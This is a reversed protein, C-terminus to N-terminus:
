IYSDAYQILGDCEVCCDGQDLNILNVADNLEGTFTMEDYLGGLYQARYYGHLYKAQKNDLMTWRNVRSSNIAELLLEAGLCYLLAQAFIDKNNCVVVDYKCQISYIISLGHTNYTDVTIDTADGTSSYAGRLRAKCKPLCNLNHDSIDLKVSDISSCDYCIYIRRSELYFDNINITEWGSATTTVSTTYLEADTDLDYIKVNFTEAGPVYIKISQIFIVQFNSYVLEATEENLEITAGRYENAAARTTATDIIKGVNISQTVGKINYKQRMAKRVDLAFKKIARPQVDAWVGTYNVQEENAIENIQKLQIGALDNIYLGSDPTTSSCGQLGIYDILCDM